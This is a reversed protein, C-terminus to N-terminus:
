NISNRRGKPSRSKSRPACTAAVADMLPLTLRTVTAGRATLVALAREPELRVFEIHKLRVNNKATLVVGASRTLGSLMQSAETLVAEVSKSTSSGAVQAEISRRDGETLDGVQMLGEAVQVEELSPRSPEPSPTVAASSDSALPLRIHNSM